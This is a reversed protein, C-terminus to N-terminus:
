FDEISLDMDIDLEHFNLTVATENGIINFDIFIEFDGGLDNPNFGIVGPASQNIKLEMPVDEGYTDKLGRLIPDLYSTTLEPILTNNVKIYKGLEYLSLIVSNIM